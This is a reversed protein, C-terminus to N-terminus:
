AVLILDSPFLRNKRDQLRYLKLATSPFAAPIPRPKDGADYVHLLINKQNLYAIKSNSVTVNLKNVVKELSDFRRDMTDFRCDMADFRCDMADFRCDVADFRRDVAEFRCDVADFRRDVAEFRRDMFECVHQFERKIGRDRIGNERRIEGIEASIENFRGDFKDVKEQIRVITSQMGNVKGEVESVWTRSGNMTVPVLQKSTKSAFQDKSSTKSGALLLYPIRPGLLFQRSYTLVDVRSILQNVLNPLFASDSASYSNERM